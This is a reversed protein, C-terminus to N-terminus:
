RSFMPLYCSVYRLATMFTLHLFCGYRGPLVLAEVTTVNSSSAKVPISVSNPDFFVLDKVVNYNLSWIKM